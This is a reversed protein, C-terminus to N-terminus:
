FTENIYIFEVHKIVYRIGNSLIDQEELLYIFNDMRKFIFAEYESTTSITSLVTFIGKDFLNLVENILRQSM